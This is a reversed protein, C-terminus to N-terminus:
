AQSKNHGFRHMHQNPKSNVTSLDKQVIVARDNKYRRRILVEQPPHSYLIYVYRGFVSFSPTISVFLKNNSIYNPRSYENSSCVTHWDHDVRNRFKVNSDIWFWDLKYIVLNSCFLSLVVNSNNVDIFETQNIKDHQAGKIKTSAHNGFRANKFLM